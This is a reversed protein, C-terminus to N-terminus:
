QESVQFFINSLQNKTYMKQIREVIQSKIHLIFSRVSVPGNIDASRFAKLCDKSKLKTSESM